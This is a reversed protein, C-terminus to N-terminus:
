GRRRMAGLGALGLGLLLLTTPEPVAAVDGPRVAWAYRDIAEKIRIGQRGGLTGFAWAYDTDLAYELDSWYGYAQLNDILGVDNQGFSSTDTGNSTGNGFIGWDTRVTGDPNYLAKLGLNIYYMYAMESSYVTGGSVTQVNYGCDTGSYSAASVCGLAGTDVMTPLRWDSYGGYTLGAAWTKAAAWNMLGDTDYLSTKAYNADQLWTINLVNDYILGGGRDYLAAQAAGSLAMGALLAVILSKKQM